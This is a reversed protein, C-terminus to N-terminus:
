KRTTHIEGHNLVFLLWHPLVGHLPVLLAGPSRSPDGRRTLPVCTGWPSPGGQAAGTGRASSSHTPVNARPRLRLEKGEHSSRHLPTEQPRHGPLLGLPVAMGAPCGLPWPVGRDIGLPCLTVSTVPCNTFSMACSTAHNLMCCLTAQTICHPMGQCELHSSPPLPLEPGTHGQPSAGRGRQAVTKARDQQGQKQHLSGSPQGGAPFPGM